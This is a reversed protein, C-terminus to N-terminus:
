FSRSPMRRAKIWWSTRKRQRPSPFGSHSRQHQDFGSVGGARAAVFRAFPRNRWPQGHQGACLHPDGPAAASSSGLRRACLQEGWRWDRDGPRDMRLGPSCPLADSGCVPRVAAVRSRLAPRSLGARGQVQQPLGLVMTALSLPYIGMDLLAGGGLAPHYLRHAPDFPIHLCFDAQVLRVEGILGQRLWDRVRVMAPFFRMWMAEMLFLGRRRALDICAAAQRANLTFAKECLVHKGADLCALVNAHHQSHPTAVYIVDVEPDDALRECSAYRRSIRWRDGFRDATERQRSAVAVIQADPTQSLAQAMSNAVNGTGLIGWCISKM